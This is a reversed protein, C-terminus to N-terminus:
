RRRRRTAFAGLSLAGAIAAASAPEPIPSADQGTVIAEGNGGIAFRTVTADNASSVFFEIWGYYTEDSGPGQNTYRFGIYHLTVDDYADPITAYELGAAEHFVGSGDITVGATVPIIGFFGEPDPGFYSFNNSDALSSHLSIRAGYCAGLFIPNDDSSGGPATSGDIPDFALNNATPSDVTYIVAHAASPATAAAVIAAALKARRAAIRGRFTSTSPSTPM